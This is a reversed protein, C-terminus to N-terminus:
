KLNIKKILCFLNGFFLNIVELFQNNYGFIMTKVSMKRDNRTKRLM